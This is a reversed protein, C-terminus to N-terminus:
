FGQQTLSKSRKSSLFYQIHCHDPPFKPVKERFFKKGCVRTLYTYNIKRATSILYFTFLERNPHQRSAMLYLVFQRINLTIM